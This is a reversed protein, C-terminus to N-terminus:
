KAPAEFLNYWDEQILKCFARIVSESCGLPNRYIESGTYRFMTYGASQAARDRSRDRAAQEKTREHFDHGDCEVIMKKKSITPCSLVFDARWDLLNHQLQILLTGHTDIRERIKPHTACEDGNLIECRYLPMYDWGNEDILQLMGVLLLQEIPSGTGGAWNDHMLRTMAHARSAVQDCLLDIGGKM